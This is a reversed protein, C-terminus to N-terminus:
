NEIKENDIINTYIPKLLGQSQLELILQVLEGLLENDLHAIVKYEITNKDFYYLQDAKIYGEKDNIREGSIKNEKVPMNEKFKLKKNKHNEDHFSCLMNSVFDYKFGEVFDPEDNIVVFSHRSVIEDNENKFEKIIIVDGLKCM